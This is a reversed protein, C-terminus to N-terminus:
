MNFTLLITPKLIFLKYSLRLLNKGGTKASQDFVAGGIVAVVREEGLTKGTVRPESIVDCVPGQVHGLADESSSVYDTSHENLNLQILFLKCM